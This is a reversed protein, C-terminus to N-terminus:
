RMFPSLLRDLVNAAAARVSLHNYNSHGSVPELYYDAREMIETGLGWGTGFIILYPDNSSALIARMKPYNIQKDSPKASTVILKPLLGTSAQIDMLIDDFDSVVSLINLAESRNPNYTAGYGTEWHECIKLALRRMLKVPHAAYFREIGYTKASRAIDHLDINTISSTITDGQKNTVPHHLLAIFVKASIKDGLLEPRKEITHKVSQEYRWKEIAKHNGSLLIDPVKEGRYESPKTYQPYELLANSFSEEVISNPNGLIGPILRATSEMFTMAPIEGGMLLYDGISIELDVWNDAVRKDIGEYRPCLLIFGANKSSQERILEKALNQKLMQGSPSFLIVKADPDKRKAHEIAPVAADVRLIMGSGGGYPTDDVQGQTNVAFERIHILEIDILSNKVGRGILATSKFENFLEPFLTLIQYRLM